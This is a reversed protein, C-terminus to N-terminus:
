VCGYSKTFESVGSPFESVTFSATRENITYSLVGGTM